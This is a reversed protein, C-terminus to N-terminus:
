SSVRRNRPFPDFVGPHGTVTEVWAAAGARHIPNECVYTSAHAANRDYEVPWCMRGRVSGHCGLEDTECPPDYDTM